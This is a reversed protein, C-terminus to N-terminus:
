PSSNDLDSSNLNWAIIQSIFKVKLSHKLICFFQCVHAKQNSAYFCSTPFAKILAKNVLQYYAKAQLPLSIGVTLRKGERSRSRRRSRSPSSTMLSEEIAEFEAMAM